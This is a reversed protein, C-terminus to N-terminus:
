VATLGSCRPGARHAQLKYQPQASQLDAPLQRSGPLARQHQRYKSHRCSPYFFISTLSLIVVFTTLSHSFLGVARWALAVRCCCPAHMGTTEHLRM